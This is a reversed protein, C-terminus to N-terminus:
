ANKAVRMKFYWSRRAGSIFTEFVDVTKILVEVIDLGVCILRRYKAM